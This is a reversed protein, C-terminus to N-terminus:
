ASAGAQGDHGQSHWGGGDLTSRVARALGTATFPKCILPASLASGGDRARHPYGSMFLVKVDPRVLRLQEVLEPGSMQPMVVDTLVLHVPPQTAQALEVAERGTSAPVVVYGARELMSAVVARIGADDEVVLITERGQPAIEAGNTGVRVDPAAEAVPLLVEALTGRGPESQLALSGRAQRVIGYCISLGLGTGRGQEKTTFFPEIARARVEDDMGAGEDQVGLLVYDGPSV